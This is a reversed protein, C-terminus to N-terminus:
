EGVALLRVESLTSPEFVIVRQKDGIHAVMRNDRPCHAYYLPTGDQLHLIRGDDLLANLSEGAGGEPWIKITDLGVSRQM